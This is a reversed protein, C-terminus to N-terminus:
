TNWEHSCHCQKSFSNNERKNIYEKKELSEINNQPKQRFLFLFKKNKIKAFKTRSMKSKKKRM